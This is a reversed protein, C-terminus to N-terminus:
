RVSYRRVISDTSVIQKCFDPRFEPPNKPNKRLRQIQPAVPSLRVGVKKRFVSKSDEPLNTWKIGNIGM